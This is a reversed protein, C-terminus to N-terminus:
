CYITPSSIEMFFASTMMSIVCVMVFGELFKIVSTGAL